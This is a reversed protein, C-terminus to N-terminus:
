AEKLVDGALIGLGGSYIPLWDELGYEACCYAVPRRRFSELQANAEGERDFWTRAAFYRELEDVATDLEARADGSGFLRELGETGLRRFAAYPGADYTGM